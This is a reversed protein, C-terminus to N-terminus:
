VVSLGIATAQILVEEGSARNSVDFARLVANSSTVEKVSGWSASTGWRFMGCQVSPTKAFPKPFTWTYSGYYLAGYARNIAINTERTNLTCIQMRGVNFVIGEDWGPGQLTVEYDSTPLWSRWDGYYSRYYIGRDTSYRQIIIAAQGGSPIADQVNFTELYGRYPVPYNHATTAYLYNPQYYIGQATIDNLDEESTLVAKLGMIGVQNMYIDLGELSNDRSPFTNIGVSSKDVDYFVIPIGRGLSLTYTTSDFLDQVTVQVSWNQKNDAEFSGRVNDQLTGTVTYAGSGQIGARYTITITNKGDLSSYDADVTINTTSYFNNLRQMNIIATPKKWDLMQVTVTTTATLGRSDTVTATATVNSASNIVANGGVHSSGSARLTYTRGNVTVKVSSVTASNKAAATVTYRVTSKNQIILQDNGTIATTTANTDAYTLGTVSPANTTTNVSYTGGTKTNVVSGYTVKVNYTASKANPISAYLANSVGTGNYGAISTGTTTDNSCQSGDAGIINVTILRKLPNYFSLTVSDGIVFNPATTCYPYAYTTVSLASSDTTLQSDKRRVRTYIAYATNAARGSITYAGSSANTSGVATWSGSGIKYWVYDITSDSTWRITITTETKETDSQTVTAYRPIKDLVATGSGTATYGSMTTGSPGTCSGSITISKSGDANHAVNNLTYSAINVYSQGVSGYWTTTGYTSGNITLRFTWHGYTPETTTTPDKRIYLKATVNSTNAASGNSASTWSIYGQMTGSQTLNITGSAM